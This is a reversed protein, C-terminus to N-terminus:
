LYPMLARQWLDRGCAHEFSIRNYRYCKAKLDAEKFCAAFAECCVAVCVMKLEDRIEAFPGHLLVKSSSIASAALCFIDLLQAYELEALPQLGHCVWM